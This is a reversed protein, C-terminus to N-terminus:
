LLDVSGRDSEFELRAAPPNSFTAFKLFMCASEALSLTRRM